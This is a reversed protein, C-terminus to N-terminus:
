WGGYKQIKETLIFILKIMLVIGTEVANVVGVVSRLVVDVFVIWTVACCFGSSCNWNYQTAIINAVTKIM